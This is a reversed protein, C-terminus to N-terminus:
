RRGGAIKVAAPNRRLAVMAVIGLVPGIALVSFSWQKGIQAEVWPVLRITFMTLLFGLSTQLTLATGLYECAGLETVCASFQASDAVIAFGWIIAVAALAGGGSHYFLGIAAACAGSIAMSAITITTRGFRDALKGGIVCGPAGAAIAAFAVASNSLYAAIWAWMAYLEWMHGLYGLNALLVPRDRLIAAAYRWRFPPAGGQLLSSRNPGERVFVL